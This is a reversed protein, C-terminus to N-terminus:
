KLSSEITFHSKQNKWKCKGKRRRKLDYESQWIWANIEITIQACL